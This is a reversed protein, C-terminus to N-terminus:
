AKDIDEDFDTDVEEDGVAFVRTYCPRGMALRDKLPLAKFVMIAAEQSVASIQCEGHTETYFRVRWSKLFKSTLDTVEDQTMQVPRADLTHWGYRDAVMLLYRARILADNSVAMRRARLAPIDCNRVLDEINVRDFVGLCDDPISVRFVDWLGGGSELLPDCKCAYVIENRVGAKYIWGADGRCRVPDGGNISELLTANGIGALLIKGPSDHSKM